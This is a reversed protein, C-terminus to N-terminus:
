FPKKLLGLKILVQAVNHVKEHLDHNLSNTWIDQGIDTLEVPALKSEWQPDLAAAYQPQMCIILDAWEALMNITTRSNLDAGVPIADLEYHRKLCHAMSVSRCAGASCITLIKM